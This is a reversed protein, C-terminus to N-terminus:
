TKLILRKFSMFHALLVSHENRQKTQEKKMKESVWWQYNMGSRPTTRHNIAQDWKGPKSPEQQERVFSQM